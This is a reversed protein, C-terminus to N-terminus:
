PRPGACALSASPSLLLSRTVAIRLRFAMARQPGACSRIEGRRNAIRARRMAQRSSGAVLAASVDRSFLRNEWRNQRITVHRDFLQLLASASGVAKPCYGPRAALVARSDRIRTYSLPLACGQWPQPRPNSDRRGSWVIELSSFCTLTPNGPAKQKKLRLM